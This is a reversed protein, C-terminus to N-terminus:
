KGRGAKIQKMTIIANERAAFRSWRDQGTELGLHQMILDATDAHYVQPRQRVGLPKINLANIYRIVQRRCVKKGAQNLCTRIQQINM